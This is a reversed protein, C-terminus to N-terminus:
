VRNGAASNSVVSFKRGHENNVIRSSPGPLHIPDPHQPPRHMEEYERLVSGETNFIVRGVSSKKTVQKETM